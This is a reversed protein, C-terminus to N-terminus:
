LKGMVNPKIPYMVVLKEAVYIAVLHKPSPETLALTHLVRTFKDIELKWINFVNFRGMASTYAFCFWCITFCNSRGRLLYLKQDANFLNNKTWILLKKQNKQRTKSAYKAAHEVKKPPM